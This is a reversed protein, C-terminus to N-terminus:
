SGEVRLVCVQIVTRLIVMAAERCLGGGGRGWGGLRGGGGGYFTVGLIGHSDINM